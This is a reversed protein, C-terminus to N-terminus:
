KSKTVRRFRGGGRFRLYPNVMIFTNTFNVLIFKIKEADEQSIELSFTRQGRFTGIRPHFILYDCFGLFVYSM